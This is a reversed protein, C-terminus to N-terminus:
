TPNDLHAIATRIADRHAEDRLIKTSVESTFTARQDADALERLRPIATRDLTDRCVRAITDPDACHAIWTTVPDTLDARPIGIAALATATAVVSIHCGLHRRLLPELSQDALDAALAAAHGATGCDATLATRVISAGPQSQGARHLLHATVIQVTTDSTERHLAREIRWVLRRHADLLHDTRPRVM